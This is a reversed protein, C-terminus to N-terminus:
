LLTLVRANRVGFSARQHFGHEVTDTYKGLSRNLNILLQVREKSGGGPSYTVPEQHLTLSIEHWGAEVNEQLHHMGFHLCARQEYSQFGGTGLTVGITRPLHRQTHEVETVTGSPAVLRARIFMAPSISTPPSYAGQQNTTSDTLHANIRAESIFVFWEWLAVSAAYPVYVKTSCGAVPRFNVDDGSDAHAESFIDITELASDQRVRVAEEPWVHESKVKFDAHFSDLGGNTESMIGRGPSPSYVNDNHGVVDIEVNDVYPYTATITM